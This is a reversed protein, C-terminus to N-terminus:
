SHEALIDDITQQDFTFVNHYKKLVNFDDDSVEEISWVSYAMEGHMDWVLDNDEFTANGHCELALAFKGASSKDNAKVLTTTGKEYEGIQLTIKVIYNKM